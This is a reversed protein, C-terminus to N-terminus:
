NNKGYSKETVTLQLRIKSITKYYFKSYFIYRINQFKVFIKETFFLRM